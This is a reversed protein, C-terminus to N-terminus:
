NIKFSADKMTVKIGDKAKWRVRYIGKPKTTTDYNYSYKGVAEKYASVGDVDIAGDPRYIYIRVYDMPDYYSGGKKIEVFCVATEGAQFIKM